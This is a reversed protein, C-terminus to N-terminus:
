ASICKRSVSLYGAAVWNVQLPIGVAFCGLIAPRRYMTPAVLARLYRSRIKRPELFFKARGVLRDDFGFPKGFRQVQLRLLQRLQGADMAGGDGLRRRVRSQLSKHVFCYARHRSRVFESLVTVAGDEPKAVRRDRLEIM